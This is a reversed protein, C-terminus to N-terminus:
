KVKRLWTYESLPKIYDHRTFFRLRPNFTYNYNRNFNFYYIINKLFTEEYIPKLQM